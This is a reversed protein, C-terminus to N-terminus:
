IRPMHNNHNIVRGQSAWTTGVNCLGPMVVDGSGGLYAAVAASIVVLIKPDIVNSSSASVFEKGANGAAAAEKAALRELGKEDFHKLITVITFLAFLVVFVVSVGVVSIYLAGEFREALTANGSTLMTIIDM